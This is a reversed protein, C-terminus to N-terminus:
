FNQYLKRWNGVSLDEYFKIGIGSDVPRKVVRNRIVILIFLSLYQQMAPITHNVILGLLYTIAFYLIKNQM